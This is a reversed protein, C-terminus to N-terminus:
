KMDVQKSVEDRYKSVADKFTRMLELFDKTQSKLSGNKLPTALKNVDEIASEMAYELFTLRQELEIWRKQIKKSGNGM